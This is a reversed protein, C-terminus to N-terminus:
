SARAQPSLMSTARVRTVNCWTYEEFSEDDSSGVTGDGGARLCADVHAQAAADGPPLTHDCVPCTGGGSTNSGSPGAESSPHPLDSAIAALKQNFLIRNRRVSDLVQFSCSYMSCMVEHLQQGKVM